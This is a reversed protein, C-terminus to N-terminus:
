KDPNITILRGSSWCYRWHWRPTMREKRQEEGADDRLRADDEDDDDVQLM